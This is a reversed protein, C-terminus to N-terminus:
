MKIFIGVTFSRIRTLRVYLEPIDFEIKPFLRLLKFIIHLHILINKQDYEIYFFDFNPKSQREFDHFPVRSNM